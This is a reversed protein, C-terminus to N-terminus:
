EAATKSLMVMGIRRRHVSLVRATMHGIKITDGLRPLRGLEHTIYGSLTDIDDHEIEEPLDLKLRLEHLPFSGAVRYQDGVEVFDGTATDHEDDIEGVIQELIDEMTVIGTMTGYEDVIVAMHKRSEQLQRLLKNVQVLEPVFMVERRIKQLDITTPSMATPANVLHAFVDKVHVFGVIHDVDGKCLPLRSYESNRITKLIEPMPQDILLFNVSTRPTMIQRVLLDGFEIAGLLIASQERAITGSTVSQRLLGYIEEETHPLGGHAHADMKIGTLRLLQNSASNLLWILPYLLKTFIVLPPALYPLLKDPFFYRLIRRRLKGWWWM